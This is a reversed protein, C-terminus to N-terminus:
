EQPITNPYERHFRASGQERTIYGSCYQECARREMADKDISLETPQYQVNDKTDPGLLCLPVIHDRVYGPVTPLGGYTVHNSRPLPHGDICGPLDDGYAAAVSALLLVASVLACNFPKHQTSM